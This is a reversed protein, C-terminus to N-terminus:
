QGIWHFSEVVSKVLSSMANRDAFEQRPASFTISAAHDSGEVVTKMSEMGITRNNWTYTLDWARHGGVNSQDYGIRNFDQLYSKLSPQIQTLLYLQVNSTDPIDVLQVSFIGKPMKVIYSGSANGHTVDAGGPFQISYFNGPNERNEFTSVTTPAVSGGSTVASKVPSQQTGAKPATSYSGFSYVSFGVIIAIGAVVILIRSKDM